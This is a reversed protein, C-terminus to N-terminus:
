PSFPVQTGVSTSGNSSEKLQGFRVIAFREASPKHDDRHSTGDRRTSSSVLAFGSRLTGGDHGVPVALSEDLVRALSVSEAFLSSIGENSSSSVEENEIRGFNSSVELDLEDRSVNHDTSLFPFSNSREILSSVSSIGRRESPSSVVVVPGDIRSLIVLDANRSPIRGIPGNPSTQDGFSVENSLDSKSDDHVNGVMNGSLDSRRSLSALGIRPMRRAVVSVIDEVRRSISREGDSSIVIQLELVEPVVSNGILVSNSRSNSRNQSSGIRSSRPSRNLIQIVNDIISPGDFSNLDRSVDSRSSFHNVESEAQSGGIVQESPGHVSNLDNRSDGIIVLATIVNNASSVSAGVSVIDSVVSVAIRVSVGALTVSADIGRVGVSAFIM